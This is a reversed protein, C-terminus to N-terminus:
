CWPSRISTAAPRRFGAGPLERPAGGGRAPPGDTSARAASAELFAEFDAADFQKTPLFQWNIPGLKEKLELVGSGFFREISQGAEASCAGTPPLARVRSRSCSIMRRRRAGAPSARRSRAATIPATSRSPPRPAPECIRARAEAGPGRSLLDRAVARLDMRRNRRPDTPTTLAHIRTGRTISARSYGSDSPRRADRKKPDFSRCARLGSRACTGCDLSFNM